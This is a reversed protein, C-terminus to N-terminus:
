LVEIKTFQWNVDVLCWGWKVTNQEEYDAQEGLDLIANFRVPTTTTLWGYVTILGEFNTVLYEYQALTMLGSTYQKSAFGTRRPVGNAMVRKEGRTYKGPERTPLFNQDTGVISTILDLDILPVNHGAGIASIDPYEPM